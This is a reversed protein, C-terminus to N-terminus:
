NLICRTSRDASTKCKTWLLVLWAMLWPAGKFPPNPKLKKSIQRHVSSYVVPETPTRFSCPSCLKCQQCKWPPGSHNLRANGTQTSSGTLTFKGGSSYMCARVSDAWRCKRVAINPLLLVRWILTVLLTGPPTIIHVLIVCVCVCVRVCARVYVCVCVCVHGLLLQMDLHM